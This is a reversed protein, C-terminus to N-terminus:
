IEDEARLAALAEALGDLARSAGAEVHAVVVAPAGASGLHGALLLADRHAGLRSRRSRGIPM